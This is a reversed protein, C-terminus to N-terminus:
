KSTWWPDWPKSGSGCPFKPVSNRRIRWNRHGTKHFMPRDFELSGISTINGDYIMTKGSHQAERGGGSFKSPKKGLFYWAKPL